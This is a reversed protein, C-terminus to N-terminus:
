MASTAVFYVSSHVRAVFSKNVNSPSQAHFNPLSGLVQGELSRLSPLIGPLIRGYEAKAILRSKKSTM